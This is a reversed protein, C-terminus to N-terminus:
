VEKEIELLPIKILCKKNEVGTKHMPDGV